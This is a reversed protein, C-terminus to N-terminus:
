LADRWLRVSAAAIALLWMPGALMLLDSGLPSVMQLSVPISAVGAAALALPLWRWGRVHALAWGFCVLGAGLLLNFLADLALSLGLLGVSAARCDATQGCAPTLLHIVVVPALTGAANLVGGTAVLFAGAWGGVTALRAGMVIAWGALALLGVTFAVGSWSAAVPAALTQEVWTVMEDPRYASSVDQLLLVGGLNGAVGALGAAAGLRALRRTSM